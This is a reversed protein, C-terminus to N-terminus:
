QTRSSTGRSPTPRQWCTPMRRSKWSGTRALPLRHAAPPLACAAHPARVEDASDDSPVDRAAEAAQANFRELSVMVDRSRRAWRLFEVITICDSLDLDISKFADASLTEFQADPPPPSTDGLLKATGCVVCRLMLTQCRTCQPSRRTRARARVCVLWTPM